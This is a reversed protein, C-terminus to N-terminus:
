RENQVIDSFQVAADPIPWTYKKSNPELTYVTGEVERKLVKNHRQEQNLRRLDTWRTGRFILERRREGLIFSLLEGEEPLRISVESKIRNRLFDSLVARADSDRGLRALCEAQILYIEDTALGVFYVGNGLGLYSGRFITRGGSETMFYIDKRLDNEKDYLELLEESISYATTLVASPMMSAYYIIEPNELPKRPFPILLEPSITNFDLLDGHIDLCKEASQLAGQYDGMELYIKAFLAFVASKSATYRNDSKLPLLELAGHLDALIAKYTEEVTSRKSRLTVDSELKLSIGLDQPASDKSYPKGFAQQLLYHSYARYFLANGRVRNVLESDQKGINIKDLRELAINCYLIRQYANNWDAIPQGEYVDDAWIYGNRQWPVSLSKLGGDSVTFEDSGITGLETCVGNFMIHHNMMAQLDEVTNPIVLNSESKIDLFKDNCALLLLSAFFYAIKKMHIYNSTRHNYPIDMDNERINNWYSFNFRFTSTLNEQGAISLM